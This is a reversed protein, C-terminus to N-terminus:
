YALLLELNTKRAQVVRESETVVKMGAAAPTACSAVLNRAGEVEVVCIRCAGTPTAGKLYCLTPIDIGSRRAVELVTEGQSFNLINGNIEITQESSM